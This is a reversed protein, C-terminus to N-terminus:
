RSAGWAIASIAAIIAAATAGRWAWLEVDRYRIAERLSEESRQLSAEAQALSYSLEQAQTESSQLRMSLSTSLERADRLSAQLRLYAESSAIGEQELQDWIEDLATWNESPEPLPKSPPEQSLTSPGSPEAQAWSSALWLSLLCAALVCRM